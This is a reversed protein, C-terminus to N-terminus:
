SEPEKMARVRNAEGDQGLMELHRAVEERGANRARVLAKRHREETRQLLLEGPTAPRYAARREEESPPHRVKAIEATVRAADEWDMELRAVRARLTEAEQRATDRELEATLARNQMFALQRNDDARLARTEDRERDAQERAQAGAALRLLMARFEPGTNRRFHADNLARGLKEVDEAVQGSPALRALYLEVARTAIACIQDWGLMGSVETLAKQHGSWDM